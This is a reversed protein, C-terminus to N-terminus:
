STSRCRTIPAFRARVSVWDDFRLGEGALGIFRVSSTPYRQGDDQVPTLGEVGRLAVEGDNLPHGEVELPPVVPQGSQWRWTVMPRSTAREGAVVSRTKGAMVVQVEGEEVTVSTGSDATYSVSFVTGTVLVEADATLVRLPGPSAASDAACHIRGSALHLRTEGGDSALAEIRLDSAPALDAILGPAEFRATATTTVRDGSRLIVSGSAPVGNLTAGQALEIRGANDSGGGGVVLLGTM